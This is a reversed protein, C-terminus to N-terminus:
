RTYQQAAAQLNQAIAQRLASPELVEVHEGWRLIWRTIEFHGSAQFRLVLSGDAQEEIHQTSHPMGSANGSM